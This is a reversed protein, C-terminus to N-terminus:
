VLKQYDKAVAFVEDEADKFARVIEPDFQTGAGQEIIKMADEPAFPPKYSRRSVLADYVDAVAMIRASLPIEEGSIRNPYGKGDWREHHYEALCKAESLYGSETKGVKEIAQSIIKSGIKTHNKIEEYEEDTLASPKNLISDPVNIKGIDHLPASNSLDECYKETLLESYIGLKKMHKIILDVYTSTKKIHDGTSKDRSEVIDALVLILGNQMKSLEEGKEKIEDAYDVAENMTHDMAVYLDEIEDNTRIKLGDFKKVSRKKEKEGNGCFIKSTTTMAKIPLVINYTAFETGLFLILLFVGLFISIVKALFGAENQIINEMSIDTCAYAVTKGETNKIPSYYTMLWGYTDNSVIAPIEEGKLLAPVYKSFSKDFPIVEGPLSGEVEETDTDFVVHCGDDMIKYVYLYQIDPHSKKINSLREEIIKYEPLSEGKEIYEDVKDPQIENVAVGTIGKSLTKYSNMLTNHHIIGCVTYSGILVMIMGTGLLVSIKRRLVSKSFQKKENNSLPTQNWKEVAFYEKCSIPIYKTAVTVAIVVLGKDVIDNLAAATLQANLPKIGANIMDKVLPVNPDYSFGYLCWTLASGLIGGILAYVFVTLVSTTIKKYFGKRYFYVAAIGILTNVSGFYANNIDKFGNLINTLYGVTIAPIYGGLIGSIMTGITDFYLTIPTNPLLSALAMGTFNILIGIVTLLILRFTIQKNKIM